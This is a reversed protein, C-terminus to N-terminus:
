QWVGKILLGLVHNVVIATETGVALAVIALCFVRM